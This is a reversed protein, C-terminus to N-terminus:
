RRAPARVAPYYHLHNMFVTQHGTGFLNQSGQVPFASRSQLSQLQRYVQQQQRLQDQNIRMQNLQPRVLTQYNPGAGGGLDTRFQNM